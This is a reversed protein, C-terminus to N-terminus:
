CNRCHSARAQLSPFAAQRQCGQPRQHARPRLYCRGGQQRKFMAPVEQGLVKAGTVGCLTKEVCVSTHDVGGPV